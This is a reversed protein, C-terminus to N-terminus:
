TRAESAPSVQLSNNGVATARRWRGRGSAQLSNNGVFSNNAVGAARRWRGRSSAQLGEELLLALRRELRAKFSRESLQQEQVDLLVPVVSVSVCARM